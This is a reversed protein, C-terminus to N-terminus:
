CETMCIGFVTCNWTLIAVLLHIKKKHLHPTGLLLFLYTKRHKKLNSNKKRLLIIITKMM